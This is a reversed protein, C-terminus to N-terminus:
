DEGTYKGQRKREEKIDSRLRRHELLSVIMVKAEEAEPSDPWRELVEDCSRLASLPSLKRQVQAARLLKRAHVNNGNLMADPSSNLGPRPGRKPIAQPDFGPKKRVPVNPEGTSGFRATKESPDSDKNTNQNGFLSRMIGKKAKSQRKSLGSSVSNRTQSFDPIDDSVSSAKELEMDLLMQPLFGGVPGIYRIRGKTDVLLLLAGTINPLPWQQLETKLCTSWPLPKELLMQKVPSVTTDYNVGVFGIKGSHIHQFFLDRFQSINTDLDFAVNPIERTPAATGIRATKPSRSQPSYVSMYEGAYEDDDYSYSGTNFRSYMSRGTSSGPMMGQPHPGSSTWLLACLIRGNDSVFPFFSGNVCRLNLSSFDNGLEKSLMYEVPLNLMTQYNQESTPPRKIPPSPRSPKIPMRGSTATNPKSPKKEPPTDLLQDWKSSPSKDPEALPVAPRPRPNSNPEKPPKANPGPVNPERKASGSPSAIDKSLIASGVEKRADLVSKAEEYNEYYLSLVIVLDSLDPNKPDYDYARKAFDLAEKQNGSYHEVLSKLIFLNIKGEKPFRRQYKENTELISRIKPMAAPPPPTAQLFHDTLIMMTATEIKELANQDAQSVRSRDRRNNQYRGSYQAELPEVLCLGFGFVMVFLMWCNRYMRTCKKQFLTDM